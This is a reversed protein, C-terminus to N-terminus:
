GRSEVPLTRSRGVRAISSAAPAILGVLDDLATAFIRQWNARTRVIPTITQAGQFYNKESFDLIASKDSLEDQLARLFGVSHTAVWLQCKPPILKEIEGLLARQVATNLHLEPEDICYVTDDFESSHAILDLIIDVVEKKGSSLNQYPFDVADAKKFYLQGRGHLVNGISSIEVDLVNKLISNIRNLLKARVADGTPGGEKEFEDYATGLMRQYNQVLRSDMAISSTPRNTDEVISPQSTISRVNLKPTFRYPSRIHFSKKTFEENAVDTTIQIADNKQYTMMRGDPNLAFMFKAFFEVTENGRSAGKFDKQKEEFADFVSSKGCGNPGVLAVIRAPSDGLEITLDDFRKFDKLRVRRIKM